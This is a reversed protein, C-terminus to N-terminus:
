ALELSRAESSSGYKAPRCWRIDPTSGAELLAVNRSQQEGASVSVMDSAELYGMKRLTLTHNGPAVPVQSPTVHGTSFEM